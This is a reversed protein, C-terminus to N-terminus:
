RSLTLQNRTMTITPYRNLYSMGLLSIDLDGGNVRARVNKDDFAGLAVSDLRVPATRVEGNATMARGYFDLNEVDLGATIADKQSLVLDSAGTDVVFDIKAGNVLATVYFHGDYSKPIEITGDESYSVQPPLAASRINDWSGVVVVVGVFILAWIMFQQITKWFNARFMPSLSFAALVLLAVLYVLNMIDFQSM